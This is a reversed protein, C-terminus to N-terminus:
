PGVSIRYVGPALRQGIRLTQVLYRRFYDDVGEVGSQRTVTLTGVFGVADVRGLFEMPQWPGDGPPRAELLTQQLVAQGTGAAVIKVFAARPDLTPAKGEGRAIGAFLSGPSDALAEVTTAPVNVPNPFKAKLGQELASAIDSPPFSEFMAGPEPRRVEKRAANWKTPLFLPTPDALIKQEDFAADFGEDARLLVRASTARPPSFAMTEPIRFLAAVLGVGTVAIVASLAWCGTGSDGVRSM